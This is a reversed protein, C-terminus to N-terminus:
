DRAARGSFDEEPEGNSEAYMAPAKGHGPVKHSGIGGVEKAETKHGEAGQWGWVQVVSAETMQEKFM